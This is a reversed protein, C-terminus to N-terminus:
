LRGMADCLLDQATQKREEEDLTHEIDSDTRVEAEMVLNDRRHMSFGHDGEASYEARTLVPEGSPCTPSGSEYQEESLTMLSYFYTEAAETGNNMELGSAESVFVTVRLQVGHGTDAGHGPLVFCESQDSYPGPAYDDREFVELGEGNGAVESAAEVDLLECAPPAPAAHVDEPGFWGLYYAAGAGGGGLALLLVTACGCGIWALTRGVSGSKDGSPGRGGGRGAPGHGPPPGHPTSPGAHPAPPRPPSQPEPPDHPPQQGPSPSPPNSERM